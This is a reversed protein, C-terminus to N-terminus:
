GEYESPLCGKIDRFSRRFTSPNSFGSRSCVDVLPLAPNQRMLQEAYKIRLANVYCYYSTGEERFYRSLYTRNVKIASCLSERTLDADLYLLKAECVSKLKQRILLHVKPDTVNPPMTEDVSAAAAVPDEAVKEGAPESDENPGAAEIAEGVEIPADVVEAEGAKTRAEYDILEKSIPLMRTARRMIFVSCLVVIVIYIYSLIRSNDLTCFVFTFCQVMTALWVCRVWTLERRSIDSYEARLLEAYYRYRRFLYVTNGAVTLVLAVLSYLFVEHSPHVLFCVFAVTTPLLEWPLWQRYRSRFQLFAELAWFSAPLSVLIIFYWVIGGVYFYTEATMDILLMPVYAMLSFAWQMFLVATARRVQWSADSHATRDNTLTCPPLMRGSAFTLYTTALFYAIIQGVDSLNM